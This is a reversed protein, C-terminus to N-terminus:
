ILGQDRMKIYKEMLAQGESVKRTKEERSSREAHRGFYPISRTMAKGAESAADATEKSRSGAAWATKAIYDAIHMRSVDRTELFSHRLGRSIRTHYYERTEDTRRALAIEIERYVYRSEM